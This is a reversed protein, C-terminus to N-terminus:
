RKQNKIRDEQLMIMKEYICNYFEQRHEVIVDTKPCCDDGIVKEM